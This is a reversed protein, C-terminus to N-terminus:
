TAKPFRGMSQLIREGDAERVVMGPRGPLIDEPMNFQNVQTARFLAAVEAASRTTTYLNCM